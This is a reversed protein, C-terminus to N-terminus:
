KFAACSGVNRQKGDSPKIIENGNVLMVTSGGGDLNISETCGLQNMVNALNDLTLGSVGEIGDGACAFLVIRETTPNYGIATRPRNSDVSVSLFENQWSNIIQGGKTLVPGGGIATQATYEKGGEPYSASPVVGNELPMSTPYSYSVGSLLTYVWSVDISGDNLISFTGRPTYYYTETWDPSDVQVNPCILEGERLILSLSNLYFFGGNVLVPALSAEYQTSPTYLNEADGLVELTVQAKDAVAIYAYANKECLTAPSKYMQIYDPINGYQEELTLTENTWGLAVIDPNAETIEPEEPIEGGEEGEGEKESWDWWQINDDGESDCSTTTLSLALCAAPIFLLRNLKM